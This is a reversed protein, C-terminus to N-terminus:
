LALLYKHLELTSIKNLSILVITGLLLFVLRTNISKLPTLAVIAILGVAPVFTVALASLALEMAAAEFEPSWGNPAIEAAIMLLIERAPLFVLVSWFVLFLSVTLVCQWRQRAAYILAMFPLTGALIWLIAVAIGGEGESGKRAEEPSPDPLVFWWISWVVALFIAYVALWKLFRLVGDRRGLSSIAGDVPFRRAALRLMTGIVLMAAFTAFSLAPVLLPPIHIGLWGFLGTWLTQMWEHWHTVLWRAWDALQLIGRLNTFITISGGVIGVWTLIQLRLTKTALWLTSPEVAPKALQAVVAARILPTDTINETHMEGFPLPIDAYNLSPVKVPILKSDTKARGAEARVWDSRVSNETWITIVARAAALQKMIEDRYTEGAALSKDWWVSWGAAELFLSLELALARDAKSYSIFIDPMDILRFYEHEIGSRCPRRSDWPKCM